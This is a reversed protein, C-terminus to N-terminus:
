KEKWKVKFKKKLYEELIKNLEDGVKVDKLKCYASFKRWTDKDLDRVSRIGM